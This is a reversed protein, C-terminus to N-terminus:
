SFIMAYNVSKVMIIININRLIKTWNISAILVIENIYNEITSITSNHGLVIIIHNVYYFITSRNINASTMVDYAYSCIISGDQVPAM